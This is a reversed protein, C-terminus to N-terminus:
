QSDKDLVLGSPGYMDFLLPIWTVLFSAVIIFLVGGIECIKARSGTILGQPSSQMLSFRYLQWSQSLMYLMTWIILLNSMWVIATDMYGIIVCAEQWGEGNRVVILNEDNVVIPILELVQFLALLTNIAMLYIVLRYVFQKYTKMFGILLIVFLSVFIGFSSLVVKIIFITQAVDRSFQLYSDSNNTAPCDASM